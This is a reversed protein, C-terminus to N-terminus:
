AVTGLSTGCPPIADFWLATMGACELVNRTRRLILQTAIRSVKPPTFVGHRGYEFHPLTRVPAVATGQRARCAWASCISGISMHFKNKMQYDDDSQESGGPTNEPSTQIM